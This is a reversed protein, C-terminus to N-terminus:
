EPSDGSLLATAYLAQRIQELVKSQLLKLQDPAMYSYAEALQTIVTRVKQPEAFATLVVYCFSSIPQQEIKEPTYRLLVGQASSTMQMRCDEDLRLHQELLQSDSLRLLEVARKKSIRMKIFLLGSSPYQAMMGQKAQRLEESSGASLEAVIDDRTLRLFRLEKPAKASVSLPLRPALISLTLGPDHLRLFTYGVGAV